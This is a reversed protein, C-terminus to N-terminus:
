HHADITERYVELLSRAATDWRFHETVRKRAAAGLTSRRGPDNLLGALAAALAQPDGKPVIVGADGVVEPLAGGDTAVLPLGCAMAECAPFGFGEYLSPSVAVEAGAYLRVLEGPPVQYRIHVRGAIGLSELQERLWDQRSIGGTAVVLHAPPPLIAMARLLHIGGKNPDELNGVFVVRGPVRAIKPLPRFQSADLGNHIVRIKEPAVRFDAVIDRASAQSVTVIRAMRRAVLTQMLLPYFRVKNWRDRFTSPPDFGRARDITLPHHITALTPIGLAKIALLGWGLSQNDHVVDFRHHALLARLAIFARWSFSTMEPFQGALAAAREFFNIPSLAAWPKGPPHLLGGSDMPNLGEVRHWIMGGDEEAYPPGQLCHVEHGLRVLERGLHSVYVGQGGCFPNGRYTLLLIKM